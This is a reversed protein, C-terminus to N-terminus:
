CVIQVNRSTNEIINGNQMFLKHIHQPFYFSIFRGLISVTTAKLVSTFLILTNGHLQHWQFKNLNM